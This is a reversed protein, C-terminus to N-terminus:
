SPDTAVVVRSHRIITDGMRYGKRVENLVTGAEVGEPAPQQMLAEHEAESFPEGEADIPEVGLSKLGDLFKRHVMEVGGKLSEYATEVDQKERLEVAADISRQLDDLVELVTRIAKVQGSEYRRTNEREMRRKYNEFDAAKRLLKDNVTSLEEELQDIRERLADIESGTAASAGAAEGSEGAGQPDEPADYTEQVHDAAQDQM